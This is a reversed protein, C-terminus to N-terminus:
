EKLEGTKYETIIKSVMNPLYIDIFSKLSPFISIYLLKCINQPNPKWDFILCCNISKKLLDVSYKIYERIYKDLTENDM